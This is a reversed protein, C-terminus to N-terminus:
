LILFSDYSFSRTIVTSYSNFNNVEKEVFYATYSIAYMTTCINPKTLIITGIFALCNIKYTLLKSINPEM